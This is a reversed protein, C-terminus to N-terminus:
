QYTAQQILQGTLEDEDKSKDNIILTKLIAQMRGPSTEPYNAYSSQHTDIVAIQLVTSM